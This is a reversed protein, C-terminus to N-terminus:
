ESTVQQDPSHPVPGSLAAASLFILTATTITTPPRWVPVAIAFMRCRVRRPAHFVGNGENIYLRDVLRRSDAGHEVGGSVVYLDPDDDGDADFFVAGMDECDSDAQLVNRASDSSRFVGRDNFRWWELKDRRAALSSTKMAM